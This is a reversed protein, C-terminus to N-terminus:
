KFYRATFDQGVVLTMDAGEENVPAGNIGCDFMNALYRATYSNEDSTRIFTKDLGSSSTNIEVVGGGVSTVFDAALQGAGPTGTSNTIEIKLNEKEIELNQLYEKVAQHLVVDDVGLVKQNDSVLLEEKYQSLDVLDVSKISFGKVQWWLKIQDIRTINTNMAEDYRGTLIALPTLISAYQKFWKKITEEDIKQDKFTVYSGVYTRYAITLIKSLQVGDNEDIVSSLKVIPEESDGSTLYTEEDLTLFTIRKPEKQVVLLAIPKTLFAAVFSSKSDWNSEGFYKNLSLSRSFGNILALILILTIFFALLSRWKAQVQRKKWSQHKLRGAPYDTM